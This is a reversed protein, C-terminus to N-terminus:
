VVLRCFKCPTSPTDPCGTCTLPTGTPPATIVIAKGVAVGLMVEVAVFVGVGVM